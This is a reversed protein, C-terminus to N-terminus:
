LAWLHHSRIQFQSLCLISSLPDTGSRPGARTTSMSPEVWTTRGRRGALPLAPLQRHHRPGSM